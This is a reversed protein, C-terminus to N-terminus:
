FNTSRRNEQVHRYHIKLIDAINYTPHERKSRKPNTPELKGERAWNRVDTSKISLNANERIWKLAHRTQMHEPTARFIRFKTMAETQEYYNECDECVGSDTEGAEPKPNETVVKGGCTCTTIVRIEPPNDICNTANDILQKLKPLFNGAYQDKALKEANAHTWLGLAQRLELAGYRLPMASGTSLGGGGEHRQPATKDLKAMTIFLDELLNPIKDLEDQLKRIHDGCLFSNNADGECDATTCQTM